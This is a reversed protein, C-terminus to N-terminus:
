VPKSEHNFFLLENGHRIMPPFKTLLVRRFLKRRVDREEEPTFRAIWDSINKVKSANYILLDLHSVEESSARKREKRNSNAAFCFDLALSLNCFAFIMLAASRLMDLSWRHIQFEGELNGVTQSDAL